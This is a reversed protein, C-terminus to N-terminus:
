YDQRCFPNRFRYAAYRDAPGCWSFDYNERKRNLDPAVFYVLM